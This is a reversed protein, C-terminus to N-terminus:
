YWIGLRHWHIRPPRLRSAPESVEIHIDEPAVHRAGKRLNLLRAIREEAKPHTRLISPDPVRGGPLVLGEWLRGQKNELVALASALAEPDGTIAAADLDADYERTRSLSLQLLGGILPAFIMLILGLWPVKMGAALMGPISIMLGIVGVQAMFGTIRTLVDGLAMVKLDGNRVHSVEHALVGALQRLTLGRVLGDTVAIAANEATGVAFANMIQSPLYYLQPVAPLEARAALERVVRHLEPAEAPELARAKYLKLVMQPSIRGAAWLSIAMSVGAWVLGTVGFVTWAIFATLAASGAIVIWTHLANLRDHRRREPENLFAAHSTMAKM